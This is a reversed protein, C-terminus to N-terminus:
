LAWGEARLAMVAEDQSTVIAVSAGRERLLDHMEHQEASVASPTYGPRKVELLAHRGDKYCLLDPFGARMGESKLRRGAMMSRKGGNPVHIALVGLLRLRDIIARQVAAELPARPKTTLAAKARKRPTIM